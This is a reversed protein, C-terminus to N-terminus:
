SIRRCSEVSCISLARCTFTVVVYIQRVRVTTVLLVSNTLVTQVVGGAVFTLPTERTEITVSETGFKGFTSFTPTVFNAGGGGDTIM